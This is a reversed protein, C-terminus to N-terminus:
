AQTVATTAMSRALWIVVGALILFVIALPFPGGTGLV